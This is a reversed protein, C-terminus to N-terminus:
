KLFKKDVENKSLQKGKYFFGNDLGRDTILIGDLHDIEHQLVRAFYGEAVINKENLNEDSYTVKIRTQRPVDVALDPISLCGEADIELGEKEEIVPNLMVHINESEPSEKCLILRFDLGVQPAALGVGDNEVLICKMKTIVNNKIRKRVPMCAKTLFAIDKPIKKLNM